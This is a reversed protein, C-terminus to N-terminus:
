DHAAGKVAVYRLNGLYLAVLAQAYLNQKPKIADM